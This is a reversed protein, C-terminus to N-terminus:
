IARWVWNKPVCQLKTEKFKVFEYLSSIRWILFNYLKLILVQSTQQTSGTKFKEIELVCFNSNRFCDQFYLKSIEEDQPEFVSKIGETNGQIIKSLKRNSCRHIIIFTKGFVELRWVCVQDQPLKINRLNRCAGARAGPFLFYSQLLEFINTTPFKLYNLICQCFCKSNM